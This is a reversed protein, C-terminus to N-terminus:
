APAGLVDESTPGGKRSAILHKAGEMTLWATKVAILVSATPLEGVQSVFAALLVVTFPAAVLAGPVAAFVCTFASGLPVGPILEHVFVGATGGIVLAPFIPGGIFGSAQSVAFTFIRAILTVALLGVGLTNADHLVTKLQASGTFLTLPLAM